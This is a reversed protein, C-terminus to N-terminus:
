AIDPTPTAPLSLARILQSVTRPALLLPLFAAISTTKTISDRVHVLAIWPPDLQINRKNQPM